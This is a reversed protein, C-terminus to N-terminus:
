GLSAPPHPEPSIERGILRAVPMQRPALLRYRAPIASVHPPILAVPVACGMKAVCDATMGECPTDSQPQPKALQMMEACDASMQVASAQAAAVAQGAQAIPIVRAFAAEQGILGLLAGLLMLHPLWRKM